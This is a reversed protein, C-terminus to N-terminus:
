GTKKEELNMGCKTCKGPKNLQLEPHMPCTYIKAKEKENRKGAISGSRKELDRGCLKCKGPSAMKVEPHVTCTYYVSDKKPSSQITDTKQKELPAKAEQAFSIIRSAMILLLPLIIKAKM